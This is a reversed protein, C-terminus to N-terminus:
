FLFVKGVERNIKSFPHIKMQHLMHIFDQLNSKGLLFLLCFSPLAHPMALFLTGYPATSEASQSNQISADTKIPANFPCPYAGELVESPSKILFPNTNSSKV